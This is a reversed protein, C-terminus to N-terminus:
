STVTGQVAETILPVLLRAMTASLHSEDRYVLTDGLVVPCEGDTCLRPTPDVVVAAARTAADRVATRLDADGLASKEDLACAAADDLHRAVCTPVDGAPYPTDELVVVRDAVARLQTVTTGVGDGYATAPDQGGSSYTGVASTVVVAPAERTIRSFVARRWAYCESYDRGLQAQDIRLDYLPCGSKTLSVVRVGAARGWADLAPLWQQAHSDGVLVATTSGNLDGAACEGPAPASARLGVHCSGGEPTRPRDDAAADLSPTLDAPVPVRGLGATLAATTAVVTTLDPAPADPGPGRTVGAGAGAAAPVLVALATLVAGLGLARGRPRLVVSRRVPNELVQYSGLALLFTAAALVLGLPLDLPRDLIVPILVLAPWHWLYWGYSVRGIELPVRRGLLLREPANSRATGAAIVLATGLVPLLASVGPFRTGDDYALGAALVALLGVGAAFGVGPGQWRRAVWPAALAVLAGVGLEWARAPSLFYAYPQAWRMALESGLLSVVTALGAAVALWRRLSWGTTGSMRRRRWVVAVALIALPWFLYFQEEVGLSWFHQLASPEANNQYDVGQFALRLNMAFLGSWVADAALQRNELPPLFIAAVAVTVLLVLVSLPLLRRVRRAYFGRVTLTGASVQDLLHSTILFGSIVFFVDVGVFGGPLFPVGAHYLVVLLVAVARLGEIDPRFSRGSSPLQSSLGVGGSRSRPLSGAPPRTTPSEPQHM